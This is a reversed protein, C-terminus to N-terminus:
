RLLAACAVSGAVAAIVARRMNGSGMGGSRVPSAGDIGAVGTGPALAQSAAANGAPASAGGSIVTVSPETQGGSASSPAGAAGAFTDCPLAETSECTGASVRNCAATRPANDQLGQVRVLPLTEDTRVCRSCMFAGFPASM